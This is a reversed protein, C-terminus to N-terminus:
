HYLEFTDDVPRAELTSQKKKASRYQKLEEDRQQLVKAGIEMLRRFSDDKVEVVARRSKSIAEIRKASAMVEMFFEDDDDAADYKESEEPM